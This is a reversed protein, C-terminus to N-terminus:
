AIWVLHAFVSGYHFIISGRVMPPLQLFVQRSDLPLQLRRKRSDHPNGCPNVSGTSRIGPNVSLPLHRMKGCLPRVRHLFEPFSAICEQRRVYGNGMELRGVFGKMCPM